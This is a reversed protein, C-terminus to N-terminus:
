NKGGSSGGSSSGSSGGGGTRLDGGTVVKGTKRATTQNPAKVDQTGQNGIKGTYGIMEAM